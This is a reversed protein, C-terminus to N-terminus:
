VIWKPLQGGFDFFKASFKPFYSLSWCVDFKQLNQHTKLPTMKAVLFFYKFFFFTWVLWGWKSPGDVGYFLTEMKKKMVKSCQKKGVPFFFIFTVCGKSKHWINTLCVKKEQGLTSNRYKSMTHM